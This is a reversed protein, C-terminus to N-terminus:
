SRSSRPGTRTPSRHSPSQQPRPGCTRTTAPPSPTTRASAVTAAAPAGGDGSRAGRSAYGPVTAAADQDLVTPAAPQRLLHPQLARSRSRQGVPTAAAQLRKRVVGPFSIDGFPNMRQILNFANTGILPRFEATLLKPWWADM